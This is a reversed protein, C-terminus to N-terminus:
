RVAPWHSRGTRIAHAVRAVRVTPAVDHVRLVGAGAGVAAAACALSGELRDDSQAGGLLAGLFSKRSAGIAVPRGLGRMQRLAGLLALNHDATKAFGLGPDVITREPPVGAAACRRLGEALFEYVEAVVDDYEAKSQMTKPRGRAHMLVYGAGADAAVALLDPESGGSVDNVIAAGAALAERAVAPKTTDVSIPVGLGAIAEVVPVVRRREEDDDVPDAGPRTSEGGVDLLDAGEDLLTEARAIARKPHDVGDGYLAGGDSFSDPTVNLV